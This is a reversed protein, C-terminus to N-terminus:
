CSEKINARLWSRDISVLIDLNTFSTFYFTYLLNYLKFGIKLAGDTNSNQFNIKSIKM